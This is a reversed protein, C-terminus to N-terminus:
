FSVNYEVSLAVNQNFEKWLTVENKENSVYVKISKSAQDYRMSHIVHESDHAKQGVVYTMSDKYNVGVSIKRIISMAIDIEM